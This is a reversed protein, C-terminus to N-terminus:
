PFPPMGAAPIGKLIVNRLSQLSRKRVGANGALGPGQQTGHADAGHCGACLKAYINKVDVSSPSTPPNQAPLPFQSLALAALLIRAHLMGFRWNYSTSHRGGAENTM